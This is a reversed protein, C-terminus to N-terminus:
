GQTPERSEWLINVRRLLEPTMFGALRDTVAEHLRGGGMRGHEQTKTKSEIAKEALDRAFKVAEANERLKGELIEIVKKQAEFLKLHDDLVGMLKKIQEEHDRHTHAPLPHPPHSHEKKAFVEADIVPRNELTKLRSEITGLVPITSEISEKLRVLDPNPRSLVSTMNALGEGIAGLDRLITDIAGTAHAMQQDLAALRKAQDPTMFGASSDSVTAHLSGGPLGDAHLDSLPPLPVPVGGAEVLPVVPPHEKLNRGNQRAPM